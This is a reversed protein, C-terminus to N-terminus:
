QQYTLPNTSFLELSLSYDKSKHESERGIVANVLLALDKKGINNGCLRNVQNISIYSEMAVCLLEFALSPIQGPNGTKIPSVNILKYENVYRIITHANPSVGSYRKHMVEEVQRASLGDDKQKEEHYLKTAEKLAASKFKDVKRKYNATKIATTVTLRVEDLKPPTPQSTLSCMTSETASSPSLIVISKGVISVKPSKLKMANLACCVRLQLASNRSEDDSFNAARMAQPVMLVGPADFLFSAAKRM